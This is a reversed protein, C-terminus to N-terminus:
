RFKLLKESLAAGASRGMSPITHAYLALTIAPSSHGLMEQVVKVPEGAALMLSAATHRLDHLRIRPLGSTAVLDDFRDGFYDPHYPRGLEDVFVHGIGEWAEGARLREIKQQKQHKRLLAVLRGDLPISRKGASTKPTSEMAVGDVSIRTRTVMLTEEPLDLADWRLGAVEGRRPGRTLLLAWGAELRDGRVHVLFASAQDHDWFSMPKHDLRPRDLGALPDRGVM